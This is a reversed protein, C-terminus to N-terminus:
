RSAPRAEIGLIKEQVGGLGLFVADERKGDALIMLKRGHRETYTLELYM